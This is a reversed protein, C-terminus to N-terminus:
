FVDWVMGALMVIVIFKKQQDPLTLVPVTTLRKKLKDFAAQQANTWRFEADKELLSTM